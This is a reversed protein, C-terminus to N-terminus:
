AWGTRVEALQKRCNRRREDAQSLNNELSLIHEGAQDLQVQAADRQDKLGKLEGELEKYQVVACWCACSNNSLAFLWSVKSLLGLCELQCSAYSCVGYFCEHM